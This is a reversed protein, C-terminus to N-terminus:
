GIPLAIPGILPIINIGIAGMGAVDPDIRAYGLLAERYRILRKM